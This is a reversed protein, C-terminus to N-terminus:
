ESAEEDMEAIQQKRLEEIEKELEEIKAHKETIVADREAIKLNAETLQMSLSQAIYNVNPQDSM